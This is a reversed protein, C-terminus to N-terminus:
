LVRINVTKALAKWNQLIECGCVTKEQFAHNSLFRSVTPNDIRMGLPRSKDEQLFTESKSTLLYGTEGLEQSAYSALHFFVYLMQAYWLLAFSTCINNYWFMCQIKKRGFSREKISTINVAHVPSPLAFKVAGPFASFLVLILLILLTSSFIQARFSVPSTTKQVSQM